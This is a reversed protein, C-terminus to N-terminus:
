HPGVLPAAAEALLARLAALAREADAQAVFLHDHYYAAVVNCSIGERTLATAVAATLGVAALSSHVNLTIWAAVYEYALGHADAIERTLILTLGEAERFSGLTEAARIASDLPATCFVFEGANLVPHMNALLQKLNTEGTM